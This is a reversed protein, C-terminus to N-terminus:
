MQLRCWTAISEKRPVADGHSSRVQRLKTCEGLYWMWDSMLLSRSAHRQAEALTEFSTSRGISKVWREALSKMVANSASRVFPLQEQVASPLQSMLQDDWACYENQGALCLQSQTQEAARGAHVNLPM